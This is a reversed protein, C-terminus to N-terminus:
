SIRFCGCALCRRFAGRVPRHDADSRSRKQIQMGALMSCGGVLGDKAQALGGAELNQLPEIELGPPSSDGLPRKGARGGTRLEPILGAQVVSSKGSGSPGLVALFRPESKLSDLLREVERKRGFFFEADPRRSPRSVWTPSSMRSCSSRASRACHRQLSHHLCDRGAQWVWGSPRHSNVM